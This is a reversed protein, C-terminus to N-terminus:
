RFIDGCNQTFNRMYFALNTTRKACVPSRNPRTQRVEVNKGRKRCLGQRQM